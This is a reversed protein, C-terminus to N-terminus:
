SMLARIQGFHRMTNITRAIKLADSKRHCVVGGKRIFYKQMISTTAESGSAGMFAILIALAISRTFKVLTRKM